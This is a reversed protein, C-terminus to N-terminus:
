ENKWDYNKLNKMKTYYYFSDLQFIGGIVGRDRLLQKIVLKLSITKAKFASILSKSNYFMNYDFQYIHNSWRLKNDTAGKSFDWINIDNRYCWEINKFIAIDGMSYRSYDLDYIQIHSFVIDSVHFNLTITIPKEQDSIVFISAKKDLILPYFLNHYYKWKILNRNYIKKEHFREEMLKYCIEFLYDYYDKDIEGYQFSYDIDHNSELKRKKSRFNKRPNRSLTQILLDEANKFKTLDILYGKYQQIKKVKIHDSKEKLVVNIFDPIDAVTYSNIKNKPITLDYPVNIKQGTLKNTLLNDYFPIINNEFCLKDILNCYM